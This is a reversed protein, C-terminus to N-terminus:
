SASGQLFPRTWVNLLPDGTTEMWSVLRTRLRCIEPALNTDSALNRREGADRQLDYLEDESTPNWIYKWRTERVMRQSYGGWQGGHYVGFAFNEGRIDGKALRVLNCGVFQKPVLVGASECITVAVDLANCAFDDCVAGASLGMPWRLILPVRMVDDYMVCHKDVLGHGGCLDGHDSSYIVLTNERLGLDDLAFLIRGIQADLLAIEGLYRAVVPAFQEWTWGEVGWARRQREQIVPKNTLNDGFSPWPEIEAPDHLSAYPEPVINPLHPESPDFRVLFPADDTAAYQRMLRITEDAGWALRSKEPPTDGDARGVWDRQWNTRDTVSSQSPLGRGERWAKYASEPVFDGFGFDLPSLNPHVHWKGVYGQRYGAEHLLGSWTPLDDRMTGLSESLHWIATAGHQHPWVGTLLSARAPTCVAIPCFAHTFRVGGRALADLHPTQLLPHGSLGLCDARHQDSHILLINPRNM